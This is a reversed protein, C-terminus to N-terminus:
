QPHHLLLLNRSILSLALYFSLTWISTFCHPHFLRSTRQKRHTHQQRQTGSDAAWGTDHVHAKPHSSRGLRGMPCGTVDPSARRYRWIRGRGRHVCEQKDRAAGVSPVLSGGVDPASYIPTPVFCCILPGSTMGSRRPGSSGMLTETRNM